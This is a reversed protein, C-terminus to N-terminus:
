AVEEAGVNVAVALAGEVVIEREDELFAGLHHAGAMVGVENVVVAAVCPHNVVAEVGVLGLCAALDVHVLYDPVGLSPGAGEGALWRYLGGGGDDVVSFLGGKRGEGRKGRERVM